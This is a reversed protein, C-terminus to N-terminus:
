RSHNCLQCHLRPDQLSEQLAILAQRSESVRSWQGKANLKWVANHPGITVESLEPCLQAWECLLKEHSLWDPEAQIATPAWHQAYYPIFQIM